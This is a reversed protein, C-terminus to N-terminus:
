ILHRAARGELRRRLGQKPFLIGTQKVGADEGLSFPSSAAAHVTGVCYHRNLSKQLVRTCPNFAASHTLRLALSCLYARARKVETSLPTPSPRSSDQRPTQERHGRKFSGRLVRVCTHPLRARYSPSSNSLLTRAAVM